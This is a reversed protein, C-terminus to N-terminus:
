NKNPIFIQMDYNMEIKGFDIMTRITSVIEDEPIDPMAEVIQRITMPSTALLSLLRQKVGREEKKKKKQSICVDCKNCLVVNDKEDFYGLLIKSRCQQNSTIYELMANMRYIANDKLYKYNSNGFYLYSTDIRESTFIIQPKDSKKKYSLIKLKELDSLMTEIESTKYHLTKAIFTENIPVFDSFLGGYMRLLTKLFNDYDKHSVQFNYLDQKTTLICIKSIMEDTDPISILGERELFKIASMFPLINFKYTECIQTVNFDFALENGAGIPIRYYNCVAKYVNQIYSLPPYSNEFNDKLMNIDKNNYMLVAYSQKGDRGARGAEQFYAEVSEPIDWHIVYRVNSKDIGMGFANTAVMINVKDDQWRKQHRERDKASLGAHYHTALMGQSELYEAIELTRRRNRVYIIGCGGIKKIIRLMRGYKDEEALVMYSLNDRYFSKRFVKNGKRFLLKEKIDGIVNTTATATLAIIPAYPHYKRINAIELYPPRFDYGWQSICHAEDVAIISVKMQKLHEVFMKNKLREPSVYLIKVKNHICKNLVIEIEYRNMGSTITAASIDKKQLNDVQDNMLAILPSIVLCMGEMALAPVQFCVSKGGGTPMLALTDNGSLVSNIIDEQMSRFSDYGWHTKLIEYINGM